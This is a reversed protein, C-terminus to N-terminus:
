QGLLQPFRDALFTVIFTLSNVASHLLIPPWISGTLEYALALIIGMVFIPPIVGGFGHIVAFIASSVVLGWFVGWRSRLGGYLFGRFLVEEAVPAIVGGALLALLLGGVGGGFLPLVDPQEPLDWGRMLPTWLANIALILGFGIVLVAIGMGAPFGRLGLIRWGGGYKRPGFLWAPVLLVAELAFVALVIVNSPVDPLGVASWAMYGLVGIVVAGVILAITVLGAYVMDRLKWPVRPPRDSRGETPEM